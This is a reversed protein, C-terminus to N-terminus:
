NKPKYSGGGRLKEKEKRVYEEVERLGVKAKILNDLLRSREECATLKKTLDRFARVDKAAM